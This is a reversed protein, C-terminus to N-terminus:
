VGLYKCLLELRKKMSKSMEIKYACLDMRILVEDLSTANHRRAFQRIEQYVHTVKEVSKDMTM